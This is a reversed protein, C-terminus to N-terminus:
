HGFWNCRCETANPRWNKEMSVKIWSNWLFGKFQNTAQRRQETKQVIYPKLRVCHTIQPNRHFKSTIMGLEAYLKLNLYHVIYNNKYTMTQIPKPTKVRRICVTELLDNQFDNLFNEGIIEKTPEWPFDYQNDHIVDPYEQDVELIYRTSSDATANLMQRLPNDVKQFDTPPLPLQM